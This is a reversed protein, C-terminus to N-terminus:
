HYMNEKETARETTQGGEHGKLVRNNFEPALLEHQQNIYPNNCCLSLTSSGGNGM